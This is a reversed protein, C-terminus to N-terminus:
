RGRLNKRNSLSEDCCVDGPYGNGAKYCSLRCFGKNTWKEDKNCKKNMRVTDSACDFGNDIQWSTEIDDCITCTPPTPEPMTPKPTPPNTPKPTPKLTPKPTPEPTVPAPTVRSTPSNTFDVPPKWTGDHDCVGKSNCHGWLCCDSDTSCGEEWLPLCTNSIDGSPLWVKSCPGECNEKNANCFSNDLHTCTGLDRSCCGVAPEGTPPNGETPPPSPPSSPTPPPNIPGEDCTDALCKSNGMLDVQVCKYGECCSSGGTCEKFESLCPPPGGIVPAYTPSVSFTPSSTTPLRFETPTSTPKATPRSSSPKPTPPAIQCQSYGTSISVCALGNCCGDENATCDGWRGLCGTQEGCIWAFGCALCENKTTGCWSVGCSAFDQSCCGSTDCQEATPNPTPPQTPSPPGGIVPPNTPVTGSARITVEACNFFQEPHVSSRSGDNPYPEQCAAMNEGKWYSRPIQSNANFYNAYDPPLCSNATIYRWQLLVREGHVNEPLKYVFSFKTQSGWQSYYGRDPHSHDKPMAVADSSAMETLDEVFELRNVDPFDNPSSCDTEGIVCYTIIMHGGHHTSMESDVRILQGADYTAQSVWPMPQGNRDVWVDTEYSNGATRGCVGDNGNLCHHCFEPRPCGSGSCKEVDDHALWNRSRPSTLFGHGDVLSTLFSSALSLCAFKYIM